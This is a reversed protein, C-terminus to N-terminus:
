FLPRRESGIREALSEYLQSDTVDGHMYSLRKSLRDFAEDDMKEGVDRLSERMREVLQDVSLDDSAVGLIPCDLLGKRELRYLARYTMKHALDGTIGFIVLLDSANDGGDALEEVELVDIPKCLSAEGRRGTEVRSM